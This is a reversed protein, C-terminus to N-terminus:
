IASTNMYEHHNRVVDDTPAERMLYELVCKTYPM